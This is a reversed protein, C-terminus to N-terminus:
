FNERIPPLTIRLNNLLVVERTRTIESTQADMLQIHADGLARLTDVTLDSNRSTQIATIEAQEAAHIAKITRQQADARSETDMRVIKGLSRLIESMIKSISFEDKKTLLCKSDLTQRFLSDFM